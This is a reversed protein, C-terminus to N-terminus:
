KEISGGTKTAFRELFTAVMTLVIINFIFLLVINEDDIYGVINFEIITTIISAIVIIITIPKTIQEMIKKLM